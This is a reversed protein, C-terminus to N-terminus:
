IILDFVNTNSENFVSYILNIKSDKVILLINKEFLKVKLKKNKFIFM